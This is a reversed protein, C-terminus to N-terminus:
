HLTTKIELFLATYIKIDSLQQKKM